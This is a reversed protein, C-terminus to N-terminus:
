EDAADSTYLLCPKPADAPKSCGAALGLLAIMSLTTTYRIASRIFAM